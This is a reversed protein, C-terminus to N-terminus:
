RRRRMRTTATLAPPLRNQNLLVSEAADHPNLPTPIPHGVKPATYEAAVNSISPYVAASGNHCPLCDQENAGRLLRTPGLGNHPAHCSICANQAVTHYSGLPPAPPTNTVVNTVMAHSSTTWNALPNTQGTMVRSPDHCALCMTGSASNLVLFNQSVTDIAQVHASHCSTCEINGKILTVAGTKDLTKGSAVLSAALYPADKLPLVM